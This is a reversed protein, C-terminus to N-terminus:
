LSVRWFRPPYQGYAWHAHELNSLYETEVMLNGGGARRHSPAVVSHCFTPLYVCLPDADGLPLAHMGITTVRGPFGGSNCMYYM